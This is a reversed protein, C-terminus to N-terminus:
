SLYLYYIYRGRRGCNGNKMEDEDCKVICSVAIVNVGIGCRQVGVFYSRMVGCELKM